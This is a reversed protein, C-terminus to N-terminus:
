LLFSRVIEQLEILKQKVSEHTYEDDPHPAQGPQQFYPKEDYLQGWRFDVQKVLEYLLEQNTILSELIESLAVLPTNLYRSVSAEDGKVWTQLVQQLAGSSDAINQAIFVNIETTAQVLKPVPSEGKLFDGGERAIVEALSFERGALIEQRIDQYRENKQESTM